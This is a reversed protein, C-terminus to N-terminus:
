RPFELPKGAEIALLAEEAAKEYHRQGYESALQCVGEFARRAEEVQGQAHDVFALMYRGQIIDWVFGNEEAYKLADVIRDRGQASGLKTADIFGLVRMNNYQMKVYGHERAVDHSYRLMAFARKFDGLRMYTEGVNHANVAAEYSFGYEKALELGRQGAHLARQLEGTFFCVLAETKLIECELFRSSQNGALDRVGELAGYAQKKDGSGAFALALPLRAHIQAMTDASEVALGLAEQLLGVASQYNGNRAETEAEARAIAGLLEGDGVRKAVTRAREFWPRAEAFRSLHALFVGRTMSFRAVFEDRGISEALELAADMRKVGDELSRDRFHLRGIRRYLALARERDPSGSSTIMDIVRQLNAAAGTLAHEAEMRDASRILFDIARDRNGAEKHHRALREALDDLHKPYVAEFAEAVAGHLERKVEFPLGELIVQPILQHAFMYEDAATQILVGRDVLDLLQEGTSERSRSAVRAVMVDHFRGGIVAAIRLLHRHDDTLRALRASVIGRLSRPVEVAAGSEYIIKDDGRIAGADQLALLYEEVYLPNGASKLGVERLLEMPVEDAGLRAAVLRAVDDDTLPSLRIEVHNDYQSWDFPADLRHVVVIVIRGGGARRLIRQLLALSEPDVKDFEDFVFVTLRDEALKTAIRGIASALNRGDQADSVGLVSGVADIEAPSLGLERLRGVKELIEEEQALAPLGLLARVSTQVASYPGRGPATTATIGVDHAGVRLRRVMEQVLRTKGSGAEGVVSILCQTGKNAVALAEGLHRLEDRRGVFPGGAQQLDKEGRLEFIEEGWPALEFHRRMAREADVSVLIQSEAATQALSVAEHFHGATSEDRRLAGSSVVVRASVIGVSLGRERLQVAVRAAAEADRGDPQILGFLGFLTTEGEEVRAGATELAARAEKDGGVVALFTLDRREARPMARRGSGTTIRGGEPRASPVEAPTREHPQAGGSTDMDFAALLGDDTTSTRGESAVRLAEVYKSVDHAGVRGGSSYLFQILDEYFLGANQHRDQPDPSMAKEVIAVLEAPLQPAVEKIPTAFGERM